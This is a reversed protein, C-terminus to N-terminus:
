RLAVDQMLEIKRAYAGLLFQGAGVDNPMEQLARHSQRISDDILSLSSEYQRVVGPDLTDRRRAIAQSLLLVARQYEREARAIQQRIIEEETLRREKFVPLRQPLVPPPAAPSPSTPPSSTSLTASDPEALKPVSVVNAVGSPKGGDPKVVYRTAFVSVVILLVAYLAQWSVARSTVEEMRSWWGRPRSEIYHSGESAQIGGRIAMWMGEPPEIATCEYYALFAAKEAEIKLRVTQCDHCTDLHAQVRAGRRGTLEGDLFDPLAKQVLECLM